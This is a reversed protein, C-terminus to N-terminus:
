LGLRRLEEIRARQEAGAAAKAAARPDRRAALEAALKLPDRARGVAIAPAARDPDPQWDALRIYAIRLPERRAADVARLLTLLAHVIAEKECPLEAADRVAGSAAPVRDLLAGYDVAIRLSQAFRLDASQPAARLGEVLADLIGV